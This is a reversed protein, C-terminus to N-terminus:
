IVFEFIQEGSWNAMNKFMIHAKVLENYRADSIQNPHGPTLSVYEGGFRPDAILEKFVAGMAKEMNVRDDKSMNGALPFQQLNRGTRIRMSLPGLGFKSVDLQGNAPIGPVGALNWDNVHTKEDLNVKHYRELAPKFFKKYKDYDSPAMAYCGMESDPNEVGSNVIRMLHDQDKESLTKFWETDFVAMAINGPNSQKIANVKAIASNVKSEYASKNAARKIKVIVYVAFWFAACAMGLNRRGHHTFTNFQPNAGEPLTEGAQVPTNHDPNFNRGGGAKRQQTIQIQAPATLRLKLSSTLNVRVLRTARFM